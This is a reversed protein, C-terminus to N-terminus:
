AKSFRLFESFGIKGKIFWDKPMDRLGNCQSYELTYNLHFQVEDGNDLSEPIVFYGIYTGDGKDRMDVYLVTDKDGYLRIEWHDGGVSKWVNHQDKTTIVVSSPFGYPRVILRVVSTHINSSLQRDTQRREWSLDDDNIGALCPDNHSTATNCIKKIKSQLIDVSLLEKTITRHIFGDADSGEIHIVNLDVYRPIPSVDRNFTQQDSITDVTMPLVGYDVVHYKLGTELFKLLLIYLIAITLNFTIILYMQSQRM